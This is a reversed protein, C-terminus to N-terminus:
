RSTTTTAQVTCPTSMWYTSPGSSRRGRGNPTSSRVSQNAQARGDSCIAASVTPM